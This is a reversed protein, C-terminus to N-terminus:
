ASSAIAQNAKLLLSLTSSTSPTHQDRTSDFITTLRSNSITQDLLSSSSRLLTIKSSITTAEAEEERTNAESTLPVLDILNPSKIM